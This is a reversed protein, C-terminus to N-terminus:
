YPGRPTPHQGRFCSQRQRNRLQFKKRKRKKILHSYNDYYPCKYLNFNQRTETKTRKINEDQFNITYQEGKSYTFVIYSTTRPSIEVFCCDFHQTRVFYRSLPIEFYSHFCARVTASCKVFTPFTSVLERWPMAIARVCISCISKFCNTRVSVFHKRMARFLSM